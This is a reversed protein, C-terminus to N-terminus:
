ILLNEKKMLEEKHGDMRSDKCDKASQQHSDESKPIPQLGMFTRVPSQSVQNEQNKLDDETKDKTQETQHSSQEPKMFDQKGVSDELMVQLPQASETQTTSEQTNPKQNKSINSLLRNTQSDSLYYKQDVNEELVESLSYGRATRPFESFNATLYWGNFKMGWNMWRKFYSELLKGRLTISYAKSTKSSYLKLDKLKLFERLKLFCRVELTKLDEANELSQSHKALFDEVSCILTQYNPQISKPVTEGTKSKQSNTNSSKTPTNTGNQSDSVVFHPSRDLAYCNEGSMLPGTGGKWDQEVESLSQSNNATTENSPQYGEPQIDQTGRSNENWGRQLNPQSGANELGLEFGGVGSFMSFYRIENTM